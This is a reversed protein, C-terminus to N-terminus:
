PFEGRGTRNSRFSGMELPVEHGAIEVSEGDSAAHLELRARVVGREISEDDVEFRLLAAVPLRLSPQLYADRRDDPSVPELIAALPAGIGRWRYRNRLGRVELESVPVFGILKRDGWVLSSEDLVIELPGVPLEVTEDRLRVTDSDPDVFALTM